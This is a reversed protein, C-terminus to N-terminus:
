PKGIIRKIDAAILYLQEAIRHDMDEVERAALVGINIASLKSQDSCVRNNLDILYKLQSIISKLAISEPYKIALVEVSTLTDELNNSKRM